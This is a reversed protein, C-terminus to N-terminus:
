AARRTSRLRDRARDRVSGSIEECTAILARENATLARKIAGFERRERAAVESERQERRLKTPFSRQNLKIM